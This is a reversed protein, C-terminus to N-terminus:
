RSRAPGASSPRTVTGSAGAPSTLPSRRYGLSVVERAGLREQDADNAKGPEGFAIIKAAKLARAQSISDDTVM